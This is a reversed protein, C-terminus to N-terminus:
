LYNLPNLTGDFYNFYVQDNKLYTFFKYYVSFHLHSGTSFGTSGEYGIVDGADVGEGVKLFSPKIMHAYLTVMGNKHKLTIWNGWGKNHGLILVEGDAAAKVPSGLGASMDIGNHGAGGYAGSRAFDTMGYGQTLITHDEPWRFIKVGAPPIKGIESYYLFNKRREVEKELEAMEKLLKAKEQLTISFLKQYKEEEGKTANLLERQSSRDQSLAYEQVTTRQKLEELQQKEKKSATKKDELANKLNKVEALSENLGKHVLNIYQTQSFFESFQKDEFFIEILSKKDFDNIIRIMGTLINKKENINLFTKDIEIELSQILLNKLKIEQSTLYVDNELKAISSNLISIKNALSNIAKNQENINEQYVRSKNELRETEKEINAMEEQIEDLTIARSSLLFCYNFSIVTLFITLIKFFSFRM